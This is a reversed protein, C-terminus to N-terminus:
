RCRHSRTKSTKLTEKTNRKSCRLPLLNESKQSLLTTMAWRNRPCILGGNSTRKCENQHKQFLWNRRQMRKSVSRGTKSARLRWRRTCLCLAIRQCLTQKLYMARLRWTFIQKQVQSKFSSRRIEPGFRSLPKRKSWSAKQSKSSNIDGSKRWKNFQRFGQNYSKLPSLNVESSNSFIKTRM